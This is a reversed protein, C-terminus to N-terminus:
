IYIYVVAVFQVYKTYDEIVQVKHDVETQFGQLLDLLLSCCLFQHVHKVLDFGTIQVVRWPKHANRM